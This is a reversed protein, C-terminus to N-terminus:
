HMEANPWEAIIDDKFPDVNNVVVCNSQRQNSSM